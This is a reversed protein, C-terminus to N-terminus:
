IWIVVREELEPPLTTRLTFRIDKESYRLSFHSLIITDNEFLEANEVLDLFHIHGTKEALPRHEEELFSCEIVLIKSKLIEPSTRIVEITTDGCVTFLATEQLETIQVGKEKLDAIEGFGKGIYEAKLKEVQEYLTYGLSVMRHHTKFTKIRKKQPLFIEQNEELPILKYPYKDGEISEWASIVKKVKKEMPAPLYIKPPKMNRIARTALYHPIGSAHDMHLHTLFIHNASVVSPPCRGIDFSTKYQPLYFYTEEAARSYGEIKLNGLTRTIAM